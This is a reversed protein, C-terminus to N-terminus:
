KDIIGYLQAPNDWFWKKIQEAAQAVTICGQEAKRAFSEAINERAMILHGYINEVSHHYDGGFALIKNMPVLDIAEEVACVAISQSMAHVWCLDIWVNGFNKAIFLTDRIYPVGLHYLDFRVEPYKKFVPIMLAPASERFDDWYGSHVAIPINRQGAFRMVEDLVHDSIPNASPLEKIVGSKLAKFAEDAKKRGAGSYAFSCMKFAKVGADALGKMYSLVESIYSDLSAIDPDALFYPKNLMQWTVPGKEVILPTYMIPIMLATKEPRQNQNLVFRIGCSGKIVKEYLGPRNATKMANSIRMYTNENLDNEGYFHEIALLSARSFSGYRINKWHPAFIRWKEEPAVFPDYLRANDETTMGSRILDWRSYQSFLTFADVDMALREEEPVLHEHSDIIRCGEIEKIIQERLNKV